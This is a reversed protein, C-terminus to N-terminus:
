ESSDSEIEVTYPLLEQLCERRTRLTTLIRKELPAEKCYLYVVDSASRTNCRAVRGRAQHLLTQHNSPSLFMHRRYGGHKDDLDVSVACSGITCALLRDSGEPRCFRQFLARRKAMPVSGQVVLPAYPALMAALSRLTDIFNVMIIVHARKDGELVRVVERVFLTRKAMELRRLGYTVATRATLLAATLAAAGGGSERQIREYAALADTCMRQGERADAADGADQIPLVVDRVRARAKNEPAPMALFARPAIFMKVVHHLQHMYTHNSNRLYDREHMALLHDLAVGRLDGADGASAIEAAYEYAERLGGHRYRPTVGYGYHYKLARHAAGEDPAYERSYMLHHSTVVGLLRLFQMSTAPTDYPTSSLALIRHPHTGARERLARTLGVCLKSRAASSYKLMHAEDYVLLAGNATLELLRETPQIEWKYDDGDEVRAMRVLDNPHHHKACDAEYTPAAPDVCVASGVQRHTYFHLTVGVHASADEWAGRAMAPGVVLLPWQHRRALASAVFSKGSGMLSVDTLCHVRSLLHRCHRYHDIQHPLLRRECPDTVVEHAYRSVVRLAVYSAVDLYDLFSTGYVLIDLVVEFQQEPDM